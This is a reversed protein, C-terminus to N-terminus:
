DKQQATKRMAERLVGADRTRFYEDFTRNDVLYEVRRVTVIHYTTEAGDHTLKYASDARQYTGRQIVTQDGGVDTYSQMEYAGSAHFIGRLGGYAFGGHNDYVVDSFPSSGAPPMSGCGAALALFALLFGIRHMSAWCTFRRMQLEDTRPHDAFPEKRTIVGKM